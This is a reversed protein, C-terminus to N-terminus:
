VCCPTCSLNGAPNNGHGAVVQNSVESNKKDAAKRKRTKFLKGETLVVIKKKSNLMIKTELLTIKLKKTIVMEVNGM